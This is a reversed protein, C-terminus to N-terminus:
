DRILDLAPFTLALRNKERDRIPIPKSLIPTRKEKRKKGQKQGVKAWTL